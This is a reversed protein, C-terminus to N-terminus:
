WFPKLISEVTFLSTALTNFAENPAYELPPFKSIELQNM